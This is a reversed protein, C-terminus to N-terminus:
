PALRGIKWQAEAHTYRIRDHLRSPRGQWFELGYPRVRYGGWHSPLPIEQDRFKETFEKFQRELIERSEIQQSQPSAWAGIQSERPRSHFYRASALADLKSVEGEIRIQRELEPWFFNLCVQPNIAMERGKQSEYNTYFVLADSELGKLLVIRCSPKGEASVTSLSMATPEPVESHIAEDLWKQLQQVPDPHMDEVEIQRLTYDRRLRAIKESANM